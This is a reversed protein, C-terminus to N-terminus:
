VKDSKRRRYAKQKCANSCYLRIKVRGSAQEVRSGCVFCTKANARRLQARERRRAISADNVCRDSCYKAYVTGKFIDDCYVCAIQQTSCKTRKKSSEKNYLKM